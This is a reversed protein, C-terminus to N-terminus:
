DGAYEWKRTGFGMHLFLHGVNHLLHKNKEEFTLGEPYTIIFSNGDRLIEGESDKSCNKDVQVKGKFKETIIEEVSTIPLKIDFAIIVDQSFKDISDRLEKTM